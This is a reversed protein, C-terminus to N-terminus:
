PELILDLMTATLDRKDAVLQARKAEWDGDESAGTVIDRAKALAAREDVYSFLLGRQKLEIFNSMEHTDVKSNVRIAPTGLIAAETAMTQSDGLYLTAESLLDHILHPPISLEHESFAPPLQAESSIYVTGHDALMSVLERKGDQSWGTKGVDHYADWSAFRLVFYPDDVSVGAAALRDPDPEFRNPHLYALEHFGARIRQDPAFPLDFDPPYCVTDVFPLTMGYNLTRLLRSPVVTDTFVLNPCGLLQSVHAAAPSLRSVIKDPDFARATRLLRTERVLLEGILSVTSSGATSLPEHDIGYADLLDTTIEKKRSTVLTEHGRERLEQIAPRFLHVQAPHNIDFLVRRRNDM